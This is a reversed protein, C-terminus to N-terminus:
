HQEEQLTKFVPIYSHYGFPNILYWKDDLRILKIKEEGPYDGAVFLYGQEKITDVTYQTINIQYSKKLRLLANYTEDPREDLLRKLTKKYLKIFNEQERRTAKSWVKNKNIQDFCYQVNRFNFYEFEFMKDYKRIGAYKQWNKFVSEPTQHKGPMFFDGCSLLILFLLIFLFRKM